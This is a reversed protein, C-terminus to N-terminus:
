FMVQVITWMDDDKQLKMNLYNKYNKEYIIFWKLFVCNLWIDFNLIKNVNVNLM